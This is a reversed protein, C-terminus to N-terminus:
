RKDYLSVSSLAKINIVALWYQGTGNTLLSKLVLYGIRWFSCIAIKSAYVEISFKFSDAFLILPGWPHEDNIFERSQLFKESCEVFSM